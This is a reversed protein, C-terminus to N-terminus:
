SWNDSRVKIGRASFEKDFLNGYEKDTLNLSNNMVGDFAEASLGFVIFLTSLADAALNPDIKDLAATYRNIRDAHTAIADLAIGDVFKSM